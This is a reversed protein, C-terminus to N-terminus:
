LHPAIAAEFEEYPKGGTITEVLQGDRDLLFSTPLIGSWNPELMAILEYWDPSTNHWTRLTPFWKDRFERIMPEADADDLSIAILSFGREALDEELELLEPIERLCPACWTAWLNVLTVQGRHTEILAEFDDVSLPDIDAPARQAVAAGSTLVLCTIVAAMHDFLRMPLPKM